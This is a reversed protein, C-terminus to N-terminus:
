PNTPFNRAMVAAMDPRASTRAAIEALLPTEREFAARRPRWHVMVALYIDLATFRPGFFWPGGHTAVEAAVVIWLTTAHDTIRAKYAEAQAEPVFRTPVDAFTFCPYINAVIFILWRLFAPRIPDDPHPVLIASGTLESLYLTIAASETMVTGDDLILTPIQGLPNLTKLAALATADDFVDGAPILTCPLNLISLQAEIIASGWGPNEYLKM